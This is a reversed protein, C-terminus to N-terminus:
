NRLRPLPSKNNVIFSENLGLLFQDRMRTSVCDILPTLEATLNCDIESNRMLILVRMM